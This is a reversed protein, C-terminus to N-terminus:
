EEEAPLPNVWIRVQNDVESGTADIVRSRVLVGAEPTTYSITQSSQPERDSSASSSTIGNPWNTRVEFPPTGGSIVWQVVLLDNVTFINDDSGVVDFEVSLPLDMPEPGLSITLDVESGVVVETGAPPDTGTIRGAAITPHYLQDVAGILLNLGTIVSRGDAETLGVVEPVIATEAECDGTSVTLNIASGIPVTTGAPPNQSIVRGAAVTDSCERTVTVTFGADELEDRAEDEPDGTVDPIQVLRRVVIRETERDLTQEDVGTLRAFIRPHPAVTEFTPFYRFELHGPEGPTDTSIVVDSARAPPDVEFTIRGQADVVGSIGVANPISLVFGFPPGSGTWELTAVIPDGGVVFETGNVSLDLTLTPLTCDGTSVTLNVASGIPVSTGALPNQSIVRGVAVTDSCQRTVTVVLGEEELEDRADSEPDGTVDPIVVTDDDEPDIRILVSDIVEQGDAGIVEAVLPLFTGDTDSVPRYIIELHGVENTAVEVRDDATEPMVAFSVMGDSFVDGSVSAGDPYLVMFSFPPGSGAWELTTVIPDGVVFETGNVSLDLTLTPLACDGTSVTLNIASGIPVTTGASPNQSIVRGAAVTDSCVRTVTVTFGADELEDRADDEPDGTVDPITVPLEAPPCGSPNGVVDRFIESSGAQWGAASAVIQYDKPEPDTIRFLAFAPLKLDGNGDAPVAFNPVELGLADGLLSVAGVLLLAAVASELDVSVSSHIRPGVLYVPQPFSRYVAHYWFPGHRMVYVPQHSKKGDVMDAEYVLVEESAGYTVEARPELEGSSVEKWLQFTASAPFEPELIRGGIVVSCESEDLYGKVVTVKESPCGMLAALMALAVAVLGFREM